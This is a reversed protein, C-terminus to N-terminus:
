NAGERSASRARGRRAAPDYRRENPTTGEELQTTDDEAQDERSGSGGERALELRTEGGLGV